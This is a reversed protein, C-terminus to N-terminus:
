IFKFKYFNSIKKLIYKIIDYKEIMKRNNKMIYNHISSFLIFYLM